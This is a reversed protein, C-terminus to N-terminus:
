QSVGNKYDLYTFKKNETRWDGYKETLVEEYGKPVKLKTGTGKLPLYVTSTFHTCPHKFIKGIAKYCLDNEHRYMPIIAIRLKADSSYCTVFARRFDGSKWGPGDYRYYKKKIKLKFGSDPINFDNEIISLAPGIDEAMVAIDVDDDWPILDNHRALGLLTGAVCYYNFGKDNFKMSFETLFMRGLDALAPDRFSVGKIATKPPVVIKSRKLSLSKELHSIAKHTNWQRVAIVVKPKFFIGKFSTLDYVPLRGKEVPEGDTVFGVINYDEVVGEYIKDALSPDRYYIVARPKLSLLSLLNNFM